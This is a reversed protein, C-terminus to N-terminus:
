KNVINFGNEIKYYRNIFFVTICKFQHDLWSLMKYSSGLKKSEM